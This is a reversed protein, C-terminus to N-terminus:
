MTDDLTFEEALQEFVNGSPGSMPTSAAKPPAYRTQAVPQQVAGTETNFPIQFTVLAQAGVERIFQEASAAPYLQRYTQGLRQITERYEPKTLQPWKDFFSKEGQESRQQTRLVSQVMAPLGRQLQLTFAQQLDLALNAAMLPLVKEPESHLLQVQDDSLKYYDTLQTRLGEYVKQPDEQPAAPETPVQATAAPAAPVQAAPVPAKSPDPTVAPAEPAKTAEPAKPPETNAPPTAAVPAKAPAEVVVEEIGADEASFDDALTQWQESSVGDTPPESSEAPATETVMAPQSGASEGDTMLHILGKEVLGAQIDKLNM